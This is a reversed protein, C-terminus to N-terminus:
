ASTALPNLSMGAALARKQAASLQKISHEAKSAASRDAHAEAALMRLPPHARTYHGGRGERHAAFRAALDVTIGTYLSGDVCEILYVFWTKPAAM